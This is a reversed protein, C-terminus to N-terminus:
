KTLKPPRGGLPIIDAGSNDSPADMGYLAKTSTLVRRINFALNPDPKIEIWDSANHRIRLDAFTARINELLIKQHKDVESSLEPNREADSQCYRLDFLGDKISEVKPNLLVPCQKDLADRIAIGAALILMIANTGQSERVLDRGKNTVIHTTGDDKEVHLPPASDFIKEVEGRLVSGYVEMGADDLISTLIIKSIEEIRPMLSISRGSVPCQVHERPATLISFDFGHRYVLLESIHVLTGSEDSGSSVGFTHINDVM